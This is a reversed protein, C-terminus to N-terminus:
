VDDVYRTDDLLQEQDPGADTLKSEDVAVEAQEREEAAQLAAPTSRVTMVWKGCNDCRDLRGVLLNMGWLHRSFPRGCKPCITGGMMGYRRPEGPQHRSGKGKFVVGQVLAVILLTVMIAGGIGLLITTVQEREAEPSVFHYQLASTRGSTGDDLTYEAWMRHTGFGYDDTQFRFKFPAESVSAMTEGDILFVVERVATEDGILSITFTGRIDAGGGYGFNRQLHVTYAESQAFAPAAAGLMLATCVLVSFVRIVKKM